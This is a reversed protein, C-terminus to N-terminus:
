DGAEFESPTADEGTVGGAATGSSGRSISTEIPLELEDQFLRSDPTEFVCRIQLMQKPPEPLDLLVQFGEGILGRNWLAELDTGSWEQEIASSRDIAGSGEQVQVLLRGALRVPTGQGDRPCVVLNLQGPTNGETLGTLRPDIELRTIRAGGQLDEPVLRGESIDALSREMQLTENRSLRLERTLEAVERDRELLLDEQQRLRTELLETNGRCGSTLLAAFAVLLLPRLPVM